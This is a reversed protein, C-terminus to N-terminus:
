PRETREPRGMGSSRSSASGAASSVTSSALSSDRDQLGSRARGSAGGVGPTRAVRGRRPVQYAWHWVLELPGREFRRLWWVALGTFLACVGLWAGPVWWPRAADLRSALGLGWGYCLASAVLNQLVYCSLSTRGVAILARRLPGPGTRRAHRTRYAATTVLGILGLAVLPPLVYRDVLGWDPGALTTVINLPLGVGLGLAMLRRRIAAGKEGDEFAGARLLRSGTLFLVIGLPVILVAESRYALALSLRDAVQEAYSGHSFLDPRSPRVLPQDKVEAPTATLALTLLGVLAVHLTGVGIMWWWVARDGRGILYAVVVSTVAYGMLVDFEFVLVYHLLGECFLLGARWLYWGPWRDGRRRASRYQLELGVGFLLTLLALAKGNFVFRVATEVAGALSDASPLSTLVDPPGAPNTFIWVNSGFTGLIALGRLIDLVDLRRSAAPV